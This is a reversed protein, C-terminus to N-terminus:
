GPKEAECCEGSLVLNTHGRITDESEGEEAEWAKEEKKQQREWAGVESLCKM